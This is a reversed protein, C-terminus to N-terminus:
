YTKRVGAAFFGLTPVILGFFFATSFIWGVLPIATVLGMVVLGVVLALWQSHQGKFRQLILRGLVINAVTQAVLLGCVYLALLILGVNWAVVTAFAIGVSIPGAILAVIGYAAGKSWNKAIEEPLSEVKKPFLLLAFAGLIFVSLLSGAWGLVTLYLPAKSPQPPDTRQTKGSVSVRDLSTANQTSQYSLNGAISGGSFSFAGGEGSFSNGITASSNVQSGAVYVAGKITGAISVVSGAIRLDGDIVTGDKITVTNGAVYVDHGYTGSLVVTNGVAFTNYESGQEITVTSGALYMSRGVRQTVSITNGGAFLEGGVPAIVSVVNGAVFADDKTAMSLTATNQQETPVIFSPAAQSHPAVCLFLLAAAGSLTHVLPKM